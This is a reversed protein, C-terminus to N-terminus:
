NSKTNRLILTDYAKKLIAIQEDSTTLPLEISPYNTMETAEIVHNIIDDNSIIMIDINSKARSLLDHYDIVHQANLVQAVLYKKDNNYIYIGAPLLVLQGLADPVRTSSKLLVYDNDTNLDIM